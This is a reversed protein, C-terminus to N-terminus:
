VHFSLVHYLMIPALKEHRYKEYNTSGLDKCAHTLSLWLRPTLVIIVMNDCDNNSLQIIIEAETTPITTNNQIGTKDKMKVLQQYNERKYFTKDVTYFCCNGALYNIWPKGLLNSIPKINNAKYKRQCFPNGMGLSIIINYDAM